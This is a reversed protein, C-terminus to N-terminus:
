TRNMKRYQLPTNGTLKKFVRGFHAFDEFGVQQAIEAVKLNTERLLKQAEKIRLTTLYEIFSFGTAIKFIRSLYHPSIFFRGALDTLTLRDAYHQNIYRVIEAIGKHLRKESSVPQNIRKECCRLAYIFLEMFLAKLCAEFNRGRTRFEAIIRHLLDEVYRQEHIQLSLVPNGTRFPSFEDQLLAIDPDFLQDRFYIVIREHAPSRGVSTTKHLDYENIFVLDGKSVRYINDKIFYNREGSLLYYMEYYAHYHEQVMDFHDSRKVYQVTILSTGGYPLPEMAPLNM